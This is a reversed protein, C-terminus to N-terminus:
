VVVSIGANRVGFGCFFRFIQKEAWPSFNGGGISYLLMIGILVVMSILGFYSWSMNILRDKFSLEFDKFYSNKELFLSM